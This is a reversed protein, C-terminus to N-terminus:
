KRKLPMAVIHPMVPGDKVEQSGGSIADGIHTLDHAGDLGAAVDYDGREPGVTGRLAAAEIHHSVAGICQVIFEAIAESQQLVQGLNM